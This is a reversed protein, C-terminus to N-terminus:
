TRTSVASRRLRALDSRWARQRLKVAGFAASFFRFQREAEIDGVLSSQRLALDFVGLAPPPM